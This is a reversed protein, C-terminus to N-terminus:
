NPDSSGLFNQNGILMGAEIEIIYDVTEFVIQRNNKCKIHKQNSKPSGRLTYKESSLPKLYVM